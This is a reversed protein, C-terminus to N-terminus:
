APWQTVFRAGGLKSTEVWVQGGHWEVIRKVIALGLGFGSRTGTSRELQVFSDFVRARDEPAIGPGDDEITLLCIAGNKALKVEIHQRAYRVANYLMNRIATEMLHADCRISQSTEDVVCRVELTHQATRKASDCLAQLVHSLDHTEINLTVEARDLIAYDLTAGVFNNLETIDGNLHDLHAALQQKDGAARAMEIEFRMRALPTKIEHSMANTMLKQSEILGDIRSAMRRFAEALSFVPSGSTIRTDFRWNRAGFQTTSQELRRLDRTLPWLWAMIALAIATYFVFTLVWEAPQRPALTPEYNFALVQDTQALRQLLWSRGDSAFMLAPKGAQLKALVHAGAIDHLELLDLQAGTKAVIAALRASRDQEPVDLLQAAVLKLLATQAPHDEAISAADAAYAGAIQEQGWSAAILTVVILLYLKLFQRTM